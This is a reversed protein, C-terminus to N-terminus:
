INNIINNTEEYPFEDQTKRFQSYFPFFHLLLKLFNLYFPSIISVKLVPIPKFYNAKLILFLFNVAFVVIKIM